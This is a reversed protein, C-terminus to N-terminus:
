SEIMRQTEAVKAGWRVEFKIGGDCGAWCGEAINWAVWFTTWENRSWLGRFSSVCLEVGPIHEPCGLKWIHSPGLYRAHVELRMEEVEFLEDVGWTHWRQLIETLIVDHRISCLSCWFLNLCINVVNDRAHITCRRRVTFAARHHSGQNDWRTIKPNGQLHLLM